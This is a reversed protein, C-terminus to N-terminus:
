MHVNKMVVTDFVNDITISGTKINNSLYKDIENPSIVVLDSEFFDKENRTIIMEIGNRLASFVLLGDEFDDIDSVLASISDEGAVDIIPFIFTLQEIVGFPNKGLKKFYYFIDKLSQISIYGELKNERVLDFIRKSDQYFPQRSNLVDLLVNTDILAKM